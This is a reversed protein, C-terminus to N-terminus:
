AHRLWVARQHEIVSRITPLDKCWKSIIPAYFAKPRNIVDQRAFTWLCDIKLAARVDM